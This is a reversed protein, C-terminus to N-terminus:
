QDLVFWFKLNIKHAIQGCCSIMFLSLHNTRLNRSLFLRYKRIKTISNLHAWDTPTNIKKKLKMCQFHMYQDSDSCSSLYEDLGNIKIVFITTIHIYFTWDCNDSRTKEYMLKHSKYSTDKYRQKIMRVIKLDISM